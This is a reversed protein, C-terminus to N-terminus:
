EEPEELRVGGATLDNLTTAFGRWVSHPLMIRWSVVEGYQQDLLIGGMTELLRRITKEHAYPFRIAFLRGLPVKRLAAAALASAGAQGYARALGGTGLKIGGFYRVVIVLVDTLDHKGLALLLPDGATGSPEGGDSKRTITERGVGLKYAFCLHRADHYRRATDDLYAKIDRESTVPFALALFRSRQVKM